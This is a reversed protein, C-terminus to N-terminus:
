GACDAGEAGDEVGRYDPPLWDVRGLGRWRKAHEADSWGDRIEAAAQAIQEPTPEYTEAPRRRGLSDTRCIM